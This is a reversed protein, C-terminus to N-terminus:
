DCYMLKLKEITISSTETLPYHHVKDIKVWRGETADSTFKLEGSVPHGLYDILVYHYRLDGKEDYVLSESVDLLREIEVKLGTEEEVERRGADQVREGLEVLGGPISWLGKGPEVSRRVLLIHDGEKIVVRVGVLPRRPYERRTPTVTEVENKSQDMVKLSNGKIM